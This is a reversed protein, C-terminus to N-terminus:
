VSPLCLEERRSYRKDQAYHRALPSRGDAHVFVQHGESPVCLPAISDLTEYEVFLIAM